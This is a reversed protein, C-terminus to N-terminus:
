FGIRNRMLSFLTPHWFLSIVTGFCTGHTIALYNCQVLFRSGWSGRQWPEYVCMYRRSPLSDYIYRCIVRFVSSTLPMHRWYFPLEDSSSQERTCKKRQPKRQISLSRPSMKWSTVVCLAALWTTATQQDFHTAIKLIVVWVRVIVVIVDGLHCNGSLHWVFFEFHRVDSIEM